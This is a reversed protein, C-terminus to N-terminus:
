GPTLGCPGTLHDIIAPTLAHSTDEALQVGEPTSYIADLDYDVDALATAFDDITTAFTAVDDAIAPPAAQEAQDLLTALEDYRAETHEPTTSGPNPELLTTVQEMTDCFDGAAPEDDGCAALLGVVAVLAAVLRAPGAIGNM